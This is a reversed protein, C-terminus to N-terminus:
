ITSATQQGDSDDDCATSEDAVTCNFEAVAERLREVLHRFQAHRKCQELLFVYESISDPPLSSMVKTAEEKLQWIPRNEDALAHQEEETTLFVVPQVSRGGSFQGHSSIFAECLEHRRKRGEDVINM